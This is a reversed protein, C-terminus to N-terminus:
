RQAMQLSMTSRSMMLCRGRSEMLGVPLYTPLRRNEIMSLLSNSLVWDPNQDTGSSRIKTWAKYYTVRKQSSSEKRSCLQMTKSSCSPGKRALYSEQGIRVKRCSMGLTIPMMSLSRTLTTIPLEEKLSGRM